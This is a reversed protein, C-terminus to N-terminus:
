VTGSEDNIVTTTDGKNATVVVSYEDDSSADIHFSQSMDNEPSSGADADYLTGTDLSASGSITQTTESDDAATSTDDPQGTLTVKQGPDSLTYVVSSGEDDTFEASISDANQSTSYTVSIKHNTNDFNVNAGAQANEEVGSGLDLVFAGIVAALIVTIAVM